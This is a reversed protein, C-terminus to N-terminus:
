ADEFLLLNSMTHWQITLKNPLSNAGDCFSLLERSAKLLTQTRHQLDKVKGTTFGHKLANQSGKPAGSGKGGHM